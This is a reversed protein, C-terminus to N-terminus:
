VPRGHGTQTCQVSCVPRPRRWRVAASQHRDAGAAAPRRWRGPATLCAVHGEEGDEGARADVVGVPPPVSSMILASLPGAAWQSWQCYYLSDRTGFAVASLESFWASIAAGRKATVSQLGSLLGTFVASSLGPGCIM